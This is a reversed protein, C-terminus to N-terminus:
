RKGTHHKLSEQLKKALGSVPDEMDFIYHSGDFRCHGVHLFRKSGTVHSAQEKHKSTIKKAIVVAPPKGECVIFQYTVEKSSKLKKLVALLKEAYEGEEEEEEEDEDEDEEEEEDAKKAEAAKKAKEEKDADAKDKSIDKHESEAAALVETVYKLLDKSAK